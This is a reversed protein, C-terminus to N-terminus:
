GPFFKFYPEAEVLVRAFSPRAKLRELYATTHPRGAGIPELRDAYYLAPCASCDALSFNDSALWTRGALRTELLDYAQVIQARAAAVGFADKQGEPRLIDGVIRQMQLHVYNDMVRDWFRVRWADDGDKPTFRVPGPYHQDLYDLIVTSEPVVEGRADDQLVPFKALPWVKAFATRADADGLDVLLPTFPTATEYLGILAKWCFSSLPHYHLTLSM